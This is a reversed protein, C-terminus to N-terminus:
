TVYETTCRVRYTTNFIRTRISIYTYMCLIFAACIYSIARRARHKNYLNHYSVLELQACVYLSSRSHAECCHFSEHFPARIVDCEGNQKIRCSFISIDPM